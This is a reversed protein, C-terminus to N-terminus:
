PNGKTIPDVSRCAVADAHKVANFAWDQGRTEDRVFVNGTSEDYSVVYGEHLEFKKGVVRNFVIRGGVPVLLRGGVIADCLTSPDVKVRRTREARQKKPAVRSVIREANSM